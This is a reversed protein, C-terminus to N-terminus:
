EKIVGKWIAIAIDDCQPLTQIVDPYGEFVYIWEQAWRKKAFETLKTADNFDYIKDDTHVMDWLGDTAMVLTYKIDPELYICAESISNGTKGNHGLSNTMNLIDNYPTGNDHIITNFVYYKAPVMTLTADGLVKPSWSDITSIGLAKMRDVEDVNHMNHNKSAFIEEKDSWIKITSDGKWYCKIEKPSIIVLSLTAGSNFTEGMKDVYDNIARAPNDKEMIDIYDLKRLADIVTNKGHGDMVIYWLDGNTKKGQAVFDQGKGSSTELISTQMSTIEM